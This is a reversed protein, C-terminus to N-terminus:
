MVGRGETTMCVVGGLRQGIERERNGRGPVSWVYVCVGKTLSVRLCGGLRLKSMVELFGARLGRNLLPAM